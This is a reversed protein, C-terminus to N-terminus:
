CALSPQDGSLAMLVQREILPYFPNATIRVVGPALGREGRRVGDAPNFRYIADDLAFPLAVHSLSLVDPPWPLSVGQDDAMQVSPPPGAGLVEALAPSEPLLSRNVDFLLLRDHRAPQNAPLRAFLDTVVARSSVTADVVSQFALVPPLSDLKGAQEARDLLRQVDVTLKQSQVAAHVPFSAYKCPNDEPKLTLWAAHEFAPFIAPWGAIGAFRAHRGIGIMPSLLVLHRVPLLRDDFLGSLAYHLALAAGNSYGILSVPGGAALHGAARMALAVAAKWQQRSVHALAAPATGHGPLRLVIAVFGAQQVALALGRLSWPSDTLGHLLVVAGRIPASPRLLQSSNWPHISMGPAYRGTRATGAIHKEVYRMTRRERKLWGSWGMRHLRWAPPEPPPRKHWSELPGFRWMWGARGVALLAVTAIVLWM